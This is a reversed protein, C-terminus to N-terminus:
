ARTQRGSVAHRCDFVSDRCLKYEADRAFKRKQGDLFAEEFSGLLRNKDAFTTFLNRM